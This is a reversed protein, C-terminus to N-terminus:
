RHLPLIEIWQRVRQGFAIFEPNILSEQQNYRLSELTRINLVEGGAAKLVAQSAATDWESTPGLRLYLDAKGEAILCFKLSSGMTIREHNPLRACFAELEALGHSRSGAVIWPAHMPDPLPRVHIPEPANAAKQKWAGQGLQGFWTTDLVPAHVIGFDPEGAEILAVNLTFEGNRKIFEKTGDLPDVLWYRQWRRRIEYPIEGSEESLIPVDPAVAELLAVLAHHAAMDAETLPSDDQKIEVAFGREYIALVERGAARVGEALRSRMTDNVFATM